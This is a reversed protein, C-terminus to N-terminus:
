TASFDRRMTVMLGRSVLVEVTRGASVEIVPFIESVLDNYFVQWTLGENVLRM